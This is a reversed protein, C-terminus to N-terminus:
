FLIIELFINRVMSVVAPANATPGDDQQAPATLPPPPGPPPPPPAVASNPPATPPPPPPAVPPPPPAQPPPPPAQPPPAPPGSSGMTAPGSPLVDSAGPVDEPVIEPLDPVSALPASPAISPGLDGVYLM